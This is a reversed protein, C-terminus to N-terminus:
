SKNLRKVTTKPWTHARGNAKRLVTDYVNLVRDAVTSWDNKKAFRLANSRYQNKEEYVTTMKACLDEKEGIRYLAGARSKSLMEAHSPISSATVPKGCAMAELLPVPCAEYRSATIYVDCSVYYYPLDSYPVRGILTVHDQLNLKVVFNELRAYSYGGGVIQLHAKPYAKVLEKLACILEEVRKHEYLNGVFLFQPTGKRFREELGPKFHNTDVGNYIVHVNSLGFYRKLEVSGSESVAIVADFARNMLKVSLFMSFRFLNERGFDPAGHYHYIFPRSSILPLYNMIPHHNHVIDFNDLFKKLKVVDYLPLLNVSYAGNPPRRKFTLASITVDIGKKCLQDALNEMVISSGGIAYLGATM